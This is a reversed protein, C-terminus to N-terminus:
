IEDNGHVGVRSDYTEVRGCLSAIVVSATEGDRGVLHIAAPDAWGDPSFRLRVVNDSSFPRRPVEVDQFQVAEPLRGRLPLGGSPLRAGNAPKEATLWYEGNKIDLHLVHTLRTWAARDRACMAMGALRAASSRLRAGELAGAGLRPLVLAAALGLIVIVVALEVLTFGRRWSGMIQNSKISTGAKLTPM